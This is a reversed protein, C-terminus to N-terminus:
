AVELLDQCFYGRHSRKTTRALKEVDSGCERCFGDAPIKIYGDRYAQCVPCTLIERLIRVRPRCTSITAPSSLTRPQVERRAVSEIAHIIEEAATMTSHSM